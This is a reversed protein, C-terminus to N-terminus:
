AAVLKKPPKADLMRELTTIRRYKLTGAAETPSKGVELRAEKGALKTVTFTKGDIKVKTGVTIQRAEM